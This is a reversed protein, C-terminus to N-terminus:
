GLPGDQLCLGPFSIASIAAINGVCTGKQWGVGTVLAVKNANSLKALATTAKSYASAWDGDGAAAFIPTALALLSVALAQM